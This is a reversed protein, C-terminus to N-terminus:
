IYYINYYLYMYRVFSKIKNKVNTVYEMLMSLNNVGKEIFERWFM